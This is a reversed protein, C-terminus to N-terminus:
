EDVLNKPHTRLIALEPRSNGVDDFFTRWLKAGASM